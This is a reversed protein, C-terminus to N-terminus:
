CEVSEQVPAVPEMFVHPSGVANREVTQCLQKKVIEDGFQAAIRWFGGPRDPAIVLPHAAAFFGGKEAAEDRIGGGVPRVLLPWVAGGAM